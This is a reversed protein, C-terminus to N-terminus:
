GLGQGSRWFENELEEVHKKCNCEFLRTAIKYTLVALFNMIENWKLAILTYNRDEEPTYDELLIRALFKPRM